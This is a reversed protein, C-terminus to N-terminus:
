SNTKKWTLAVLSRGRRGLRRYEEFEEPTMKDFGCAAVLHYEDKDGVVKDFEDRHLWIVDGMSVSCVGPVNQFDNQGWKFTADLVNEPLTDDPISVRRIVGETPQNALMFVRVIM